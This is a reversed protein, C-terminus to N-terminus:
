RAAEYGVFTAYPLLGKIGATPAYEQHTVLFRDLKTELEPESVHWRPGGQVLSFPPTPAPESVAVRSGPPGEPGSGFDFFTPVAFVALFAASAALGAGVFPAFRAMSPRRRQSRSAEPALVTAEQALRVSVADAVGRYADRVRERHLVASILHYREWRAALDPDSEIADLLSVMSRPGLEGDILASLQQTQDDRM